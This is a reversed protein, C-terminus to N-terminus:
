TFGTFNKKKERQHTLVHTPPHPPTTWLPNVRFKIHSNQGRACCLVFHMSLEAVAGGRLPIYKMWGAPFFVTCQPWWALEDVNRTTLFLSVFVLRPRRSLLIIKWLSTTLFFLEALWSRLPAEAQCAVFLWFSLFSLFRDDTTFRCVNWSHNLCMTVDQFCSSSRKLILHCDIGWKKKKGKKFWRSFKTRCLLSSSFFYFIGLIYLIWM